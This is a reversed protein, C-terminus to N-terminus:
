NFCKYTDRMVLQERRTLQHFDKDQRLMNEVMTQCVRQRRQEYIEWQPPLDDNDSNSALRATAAADSETADSSSSAEAGSANDVDETITAADTNTKANYQESAKANDTNNTTAQPESAARARTNISIASTRGVSQPKNGSNAEAATLSDATTTDNVILNETAGKSLTSQPTPIIAIDTQSSDLSSALASKQQPKNDLNDASIAPNDARKLQTSRPQQTPTIHTEGTVPLTQWLMSLMFVIVFVGTLFVFQTTLLPKM